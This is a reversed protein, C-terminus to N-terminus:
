AQRVTQEVVPLIAATSMLTILRTDYRATRAATYALTAFSAFSSAAFGATGVNYVVPRGMETARGIAEELADLGIIRRLKPLPADSRAKSLWFANCLCYYIVFLFITFGLRNNSDTTLWGGFISRMFDRLSQINM